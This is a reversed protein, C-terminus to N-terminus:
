NKMRHLTNQIDWHQEANLNWKFPKSPKYMQESIKRVHFQAVYLHNETVWDSAGTFPVTRKAVLRFVDSVTVEVGLFM